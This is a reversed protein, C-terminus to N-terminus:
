NLVDPSEQVQAGFGKRSGRASQETRSSSHKGGHNRKLAGTRRLGTVDPGNFGKGPRHEGQAGQPPCFGSRRVAHRVLSKRVRLSCTLFFDRGSGVRRSSFHFIFAVPGVGGKGYYNMQRVFSSVQTARFFQPMITHFKDVDKIVIIKGCPSWDIVDPHREIMELTITMFDKKPKSSKENEAEHVPFSAPAATVSSARLVRPSVFLPASTSANKKLTQTESPPKSSPIVAPTESQPRFISPQSSLPVGFFVSRVSSTYLQYMDLAGGVVDVVDVECPPRPNLHDDQEDFNWRVTSAPIM